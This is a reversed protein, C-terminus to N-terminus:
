GNMSICVGKSCESSSTLPSSPDSFCTPTPRRHYNQTGECSSLLSTIIRKIKLRDGLLPSIERLYEDNLVLFTEGDIKHEVLKEFVSKELTPAIKRVYTCVEAPSFQDFVTHQTDAM